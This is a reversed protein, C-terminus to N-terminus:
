VPGPGGSLRRYFPDRGPPLWAPTSRQGGVAMSRRLKFFSYLCVEVGRQAKVTRELTFNIKDVSVPVQGQTALLQSPPLPPTNDRPCSGTLYLQTSLLYPIM